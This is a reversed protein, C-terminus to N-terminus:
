RYVKVPTTHHDRRFDHVFRDIAYDFSHMLNGRESRIATYQPRRAIYNLKSSEVPIIRQAPYGAREAIMVAWDYWSLEHQNCIHWIGQADDILLDLTSNVLDPIYTPTIVIDSAAHFSREQMVSKLVSYAFNYKDWPGFFASTRIILSGPLITSVVREMDAKTQGYVNLPAVRSSEVYPSDQAGNFVLDSSFNVLKIKYRACL